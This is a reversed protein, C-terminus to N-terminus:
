VKFVINKLPFFILILLDAMKVDIGAAIAIQELLFYKYKLTNIFTEFM